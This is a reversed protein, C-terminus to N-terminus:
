YLKYGRTCTKKFASLGVHEKNKDRKDFTLLLHPVQLTSSVKFAGYWGDYRPGHKAVPSNFYNAPDDDLNPRSVSINDIICRIDQNNEYLVFGDINGGWELGYSRITYDFITEGIRREGGNFLPKTQITRKFSAWWEAFGKADLEKQRAFNVKGDKASTLIIYFIGSKYQVVYLPIGLKDALVVRSFLEDNSFPVTSIDEDDRYEVAEIAATFNHNEDMLLGQLSYARMRKYLKEQFDHKDESSRILM